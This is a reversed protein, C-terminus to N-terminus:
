YREIHKLIPVVGYKPTYNEDDGIKNYLVKKSDISM